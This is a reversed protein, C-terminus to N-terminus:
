RRWQEGARNKILSGSKLRSAVSAARGLGSAQGRISGAALCDRVENVGSGNALIHFLTNGHVFIFNASSPGTTFPRNKCRTPGAFGGAAVDGDCQSTSVHLLGDVIM